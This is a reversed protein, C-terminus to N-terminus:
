KFTVPTGPKVGRALERADWNTLRVCGHPSPGGVSEADPAGHIGYGDRSLNIWVVGIPNNPGPAIETRGRSFGAVGLSDSDYSYSPQPDISVVQVAGTFAPCSRSGVSAPYAALLRGMADYARVLGAGHDVEIRGLDVRLDDDGRAAVLVTEGPVFRAKPNLARLLAVDMHFAEALEEAADRYGLHELRAMAPFDKPIEPTFPGAIDDADIRHAMIAPKPDAMTLSAWVPRSLKGDAPFGHAQEYAVLGRRVDEDLRGNIVGPSFRARDLLVQLRVVAPDYAGKAPKSGPLDDAGNVAAARQQGPSLNAGAPSAKRGGCGCLSAALVAALALALRISSVAAM